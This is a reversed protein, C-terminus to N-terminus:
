AWAAGAAWAAEAAWAAGAAGAAGAAWAAGAAGAAGAAWAAGAAEAAGAAWAAGAAEAAWAAWAAGAAEAAWSDIACMLTGGASQDHLAAVAEVAVRVGWEDKMDPALAVERLIRAMIRHHARHTDAGVPIAELFQVPWDQGAKNAGVRHLSEFLADELHALEEPLGLEVPYRAHNYGDVTCAVACGKQGMSPVGTAGAALLDAKRHQRMIAIRKRKLEPNSHYALLAPM